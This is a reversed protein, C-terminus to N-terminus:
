AMASPIAYEETRTVVFGRRLYNPIAAPHDLSCTHLWVRAAGQEWAREVAATLLLGGYGRGTFGELLGFYVIEIGDDADRRLEFYGAPAGRVTMLWLSVAPYDLYARIQDDTWPLRDVWHYRRGVETYLYRWFSPPCGDVRDIRVDRGPDGARRLASPSQMEMYTRLVRVGPPPAGPASGGDQPVAADLAQKWRAASAFVEELERGSGLGSRVDRLTGILADIARGLPAANTAAIDRWIDAPSTALRTTDRLGRGAFALGDSGARTGVVHMLASVVLQPLQSLFAVLEDHAAPTMRSTRAGALRLLAEVRCVDGEATSTDPTLIWPRNRFLDASASAFGSVAAGALPHGGIFRLRDPLASAASVTVQKTSGVDTVLASGRHVDPLRRLMDLNQRIPAALVILDADAALELDSGAADAAGAARVRELVERRDIAVVRTAPAARKIALALSGGILGVGAIAITEFPTEQM